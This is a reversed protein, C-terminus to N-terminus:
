SFAWCVHWLSDSLPLEETLNGRELCTQTDRPTDLHTQTYILNVFVLLLGGFVPNLCCAELPRLHKTKRLSLKQSHKPSQSYSHTHAHTHTQMCVHTDAHELTKTNSHYINHPSHIAHTNKQKHLSYILKVFCHDICESDQHKHAMVFLQSM